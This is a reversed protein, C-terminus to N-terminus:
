ESGGKLDARSWLQKRYIHFARKLQETLISEGKYKKGNFSSLPVVEQISNTIFAEDANMVDDLRYFGQEYSIGKEELVALIFQRTIGNLIGTKISPTYVVQNKVWFLNSVVGEAVFGDETLFIGEVTNDDGLERKALVNNLYHHSKLRMSGEPTNRKITVVKARKSNVQSLPLPKMYVIVTPEEYQGTYLGLDQPGASVNWRVYASQLNNALLLRQIIELVVEREMSWSIGLMQLGAQLRRFHDDLLFPHGDDVRFTEFLGLGYMYGHDFASIVAQEKSVIQGNIYVFM